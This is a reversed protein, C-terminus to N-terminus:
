RHRPSNSESFPAHIVRRRARLEHHSRRSNAVGESCWFHRSEDIGAGPHVALGAVRSGVGIGVWAWDETYAHGLSPLTLVGALSFLAESSSNIDGKPFRVALSGAVVIGGATAALALAESKPNDPPTSEADSTSATSLVLIAVVLRM